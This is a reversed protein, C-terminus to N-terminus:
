NRRVANNKEKMKELILKLEMEKIKIQKQQELERAKLMADAKDKSVKNTAEIMLPDTEKQQQQKNKNQESLKQQFEEKNIEGNGYQYILDDVKTSFRKALIDSDNITLNKGIIDASLDLFEPNVQALTLLTNVTRLNEAQSGPSAVVSIDYDSILARIDNLINPYEPTHTAGKENITMVSDDIVISFQEKILVPLLDRIIHGVQNIAQTLCWKSFKHYIGSQVQQQEIAAGSKPNNAEQKQPQLVHSGGASEHIALKLKFFLDHLTPDVATSEVVMPFAQQQQGDLPMNPENIKVVGANKNIEKWQGEYNEVMPGTVVWTRENLYKIQNALQSGSLNYLKQLDMIDEIFPRTREIVKKEHLIRIANGCFVIPLKCFLDNEGFVLGEELIEKRTGIIKRIQPIDRTVEDVISSQQNDMLLDERIEQGSQLKFFKTKRPSKYWFEIIEELDNGREKEYKYKKYISGLIKKKVKKIFGCFKGDDKTTNKANKDYFVCNYPLLHLEPLLQTSYDSQYKLGVYINAYGHKFMETAARVFVENNDESLVFFDTIKHAFATQARNKNHKSSIKLSFGQSTFESINHALIKQTINFTLSEKGHKKAREYVVQEDWQKGEAFLQCKYARENNDKYFSEWEEAHQWINEITYKEHLLM